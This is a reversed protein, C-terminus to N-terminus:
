LDAEEDSGDFWLSYVSTEHERSADKGDETTELIQEANALSIRWRRIRPDSSSSLVVLEDVTSAVPDIALCQVAMMNDLKDRLTHLRKGTETDWVMIKKDAGGSILVNKGSINACIVAKVFDSHGRFRQQPAGTLTTWSWIEKDWCGAFVTQGDQGGIAVSTLVSTPGRYVTKSDKTQLM